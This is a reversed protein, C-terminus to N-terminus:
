LGLDRRIRRWSLCCFRGASAQIQQVNQLQGQVATCDGGDSALGWTVVSGDGLFAPFASLTAQIHQVNKPQDQLASSDGGGAADGWTVVSGDGLLAAFASRNSRVLARTVYLTLSHGNKVRADKIPAGADLMSGFPDM